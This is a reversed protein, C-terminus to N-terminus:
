PLTVAGGIDFVPAKTLYVPRVAHKRLFATIRDKDTHGDLTGTFALTDENLLFSAGGIFGTDFGELRIMGPAIHLVDIGAKSARRAIVDDATIIAEDSVVCVSCKTFGQPVDIRTDTLLPALLPDVTKSNYITYRGVVCVCLGAVAPYSAGQPGSQTVTYGRYTLYNVIFPYIGQAAVSTKPAPFVVSLDAHGSLRPDIDPNDPLWFVDAGLDALPADLKQRYRQGILLTM